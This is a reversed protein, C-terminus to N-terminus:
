FSQITKGSDNMLYCDSKEPVLIFMYKTLIKEFDTLMTKKDLETILECRILKCSESDASIGYPRGCSEIKRSKFEKLTLYQVKIQKIGEYMNWSEDLNCNVRLYM